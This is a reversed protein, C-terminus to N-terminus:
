KVDVGMGELKAKLVADVNKDLMNGLDMAIFKVGDAQYLAFAKDFEPNGPRAMRFCDIVISEKNLIFSPNLVNGNISVAKDREFDIFQRYLFHSIKEKLEALEQKKKREEIDIM